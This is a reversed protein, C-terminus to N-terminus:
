YIGSYIIIQILTKWTVFDGYFLEYSIVSVRGVLTWPLQISNLQSYIPVLNQTSSSKYM